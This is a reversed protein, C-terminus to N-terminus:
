DLTSDRFKEPTVSYFWSFESYGTELGLNSGPAERIRLLLTLGEVLVNSSLGRLIKRKELVKLM